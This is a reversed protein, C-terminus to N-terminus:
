AWACGRAAALQAVTPSCCQGPRAPGFGYVNPRLFPSCGRACFRVPLQDACGRRELIKKGDVVNIQYVDHMVPRWDDRCDVDSQFGLISTGRWWRFRFNAGFRPHGLAPTAPAGSGLEFRVATRATWFPRTRIREGLIAVRVLACSPLAAKLVALGADDRRLGAGSQGGALPQHDRDDALVSVQFGPLAIRADLRDSPFASQVLTGNIARDDAGLALAREDHRPGTVAAAVARVAVLQHRWPPWFGQCDTLSFGQCLFGSLVALFGSMRDASSSSSLPSPFALSKGRAPLSVFRRNEIGGTRPPRGKLPGGGFREFFSGLDVEFGLGAAGGGSDPPSSPPPPPSGAAHRASTSSQATRGHGIVGRSIAIARVSNTLATASPTASRRSGPRHPHKPRPM